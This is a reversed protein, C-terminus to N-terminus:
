RSIHMCTHQLQHIRKLIGDHDIITPLLRPLTKEADGGGGVGENNSVDESQLSVCKCTALASGFRRDQRQDERNLTNGDMTVM